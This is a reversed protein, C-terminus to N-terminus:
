FVEDVPKRSPSNARRHDEWEFKVTYTNEAIRSLVRGGCCDALEAQSLNTCLITPLRFKIRTDFIQQLRKQEAKSWSQVGLEDIVLVAIQSLKQIIEPLPLPLNKSNIYDFLDVADIYLGPYGLQDMRNLVASALHSKGTGYDGVLFLGIEVNKGNQYRQGFRDAFLKCIKVAKKQGDLKADYNEFTASKIRKDVSILGKLVVARRCFLDKAEEEDDTKPRLATFTKPLEDERSAKKRLENVKSLLDDLSKPEDGTM